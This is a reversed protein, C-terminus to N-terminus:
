QPTLIIDDVMVRTNPTVNQVTNKPDAKFVVSAAVTTVNQEPTIEFPFEVAQWEQTLDKDFLYKSRAIEGVRSGDSAFGTLVLWVHFGKPLETAKIWFKVNYRGPQIPTGGTRPQGTWVVQAIDAGEPFYFQIAHKGSHTTEGEAGDQIYFEGPTNAPTTYIRFGTPREGDTSEFSPNPLLGEDQALAAAALLPLLLIIKM